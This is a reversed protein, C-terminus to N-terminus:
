EFSGTGSAVLALLIIAGGAYGLALGALAMGSGKQWGQSGKIQGRAVHGFVIALVAGITTVFLVGSVLAAIALGNTRVRLRPPYTADAPM